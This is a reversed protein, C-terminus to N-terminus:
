THLDIERAARERPDEEEPDRLEAIEPHRFLANDDFNMKADLVLFGGDDLQALPNVELQMCDSGLFARYLGKLLAGFAKEEKTGLGLRRAIRRIQFSGVGVLPDM